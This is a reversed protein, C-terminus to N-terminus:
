LAHDGGACIMGNEKTVTKQRRIKPVVVISNKHTNSSYFLVFEEYM